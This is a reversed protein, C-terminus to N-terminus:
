VQRSFEMSLPAQHAVTCLTMFLQVHSLPDVVIFIARKLFKVFGNPRVIQTGHVQIVGLFGESRAHVAVVADAFAQQPHVEELTKHAVRPEVVHRQNQFGGVFTQPSFLDFQQM